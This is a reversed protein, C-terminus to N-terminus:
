AIPAPAAVALKEAWPALAPMISPYLAIGQASQRQALALGKEGPTRVANGARAPRSTRCAAAVHSTQRTFADMGAFARPDLVQLFVTAGWGERPDARGRGALGGTLAEM